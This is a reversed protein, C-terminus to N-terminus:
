SSLFPMGIGFSDLVDNMLALKAGTQVTYTNATAGVATHEVSTVTKFMKSGAVTSGAAATFTESVDKGFQNTGKVIVDGGDWSAAFVVDVSRPVAPNTLGSTVPTVPTNGAIAAHVAVAAAAPAGLSVFGARGTADQDLAEQALLDGAKALHQLYAKKDKSLAM